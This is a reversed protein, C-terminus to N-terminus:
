PNHIRLSEIATVSRLTLSACTFATVFPGKARSGLRTLQLHCTQRSQCTVRLNVLSLYEGLNGRLEIIGLIDTRSLVGDGSCGNIVDVKRSDAGM